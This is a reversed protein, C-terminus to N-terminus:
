NPQKVIQGRSDTLVKDKTSSGISYGGIQGMPAAAGKTAKLGKGFVSLFEAMVRPSSAILAPWFKPSVYYALAAQGVLAPGTGAIGRPIFSSMSHGAIEAALDHGAKRGLVDVLERRLEFNDRMASTLRRLTQDAIIRGSIGQKRLMLGSEVDKILKTAEEYAKTMKGYEPVTTVIEDKVVNRLNTVFARANSSETYFDDLQRKLMDLGIVTQDGDKAGWSKIMEYIDKIKKVGESNEPGLASRSWDPQGNQDIRVYRKLVDDAKNKIKSLDFLNQNGTLKSLRAQYEAQRQSKLVALADRTNQVIEDGSIKGRLAAKFSPSGKIAEEIAAKGTGTLSGLIQRGARGAIGVGETLLKGGAEMTVGTAIDKGAEITRQGLTQDANEGLLLDAAQSGMSYGLGAGLASTAAAGPGTPAGAALGAAGGALLGGGELGVRAAEKAIKRWDIPERKGDVIKAVPVFNGYPDALGTVAPAPEVKRVPVFDTMTDAGM